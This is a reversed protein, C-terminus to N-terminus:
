RIMEVAMHVVSGLAVVFAVGLLVGVFRLTRAWADAETEGPKRTWPLTV